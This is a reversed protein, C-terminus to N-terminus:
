VQLKWIAQNKTAIGAGVQISVLDRHKWPYLAPAQWPFTRSTRPLSPSGRCPLDVAPRRDRQGADTGVRTGCLLQPQFSWAPRSLRQSPAAKPDPNHCEPWLESKPGSATLQCNSGGAKWPQRKVFPLVSCRLGGRSGLVPVGARRSGPTQDKDVSPANGRKPEQGTTAAGQGWVSVWRLQHGKLHLAPLGAALPKQKGKRPKAEVDGKARAKIQKRNQLLLTELSDFYIFSSHIQLM